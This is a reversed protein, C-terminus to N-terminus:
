VHSYESYVLVALRTRPNGWGTLGLQEYISSSMVKVTGQSIGMKEAIEKNNFGAGIYVAVDFLRPRLKSLNILAPGSPKFCGPRPNGM